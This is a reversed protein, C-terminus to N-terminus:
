AGSPSGTSTGCAPLSGYVYAQVGQDLPMHWIWLGLALTILSGVLTALWASWRLVALMFLLVVVPILAVLWTAFLNGAPDLVQTFM